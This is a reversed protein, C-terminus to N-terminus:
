WVNAEGGTSSHVTAPGGSSRSYDEGGSGAPPATLHPLLQERIRNDVLSPNRQIEALRAQKAAWVRRVIDALQQRDESAARGFPFDPPREVHVM